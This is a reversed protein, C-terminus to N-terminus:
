CELFYPYDTHASPWGDRTALAHLVGLATL